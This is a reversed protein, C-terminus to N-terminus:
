TTSYNNEQHYQEKKINLVSFNHKQMWLYIDVLIKPKQDKHILYLSRISIAMNVVFPMFTFLNFPLKFAGDVISNIFRLKTLLLFIQHPFVLVLFCGFILSMVQVFVMLMQFNIFVTGIKNIYRYSDKKYLWLMLPLIINLLFVGSLIGVIGSLFIMLMYNILSRDKKNYDKTDITLKSEENNNNIIPEEININQKQQIQQELIKQQLFPRVGQAPPLGKGSEHEYNDFM